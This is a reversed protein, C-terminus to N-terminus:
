DEMLKPRRGRTRRRAAMAAFDLGKFVSWEIGEPLPRNALRQCEDASIARFGYKDHVDSLEHGAQLRRSRDKVPTARIDDIADGRLSHFVEGGKAGNRRMHNQMTKSMYKSPNPHEHAAAFVFGNQARMWEIFGIDDFYKHLVYFAMSEETKIPVRRWETEGTEENKVEVIGDTQAIWVGHKQRIDSGQLYTLLGLRRSTLKSLPPLMAVDLLGSTVGNRFVQNIVDLSLGERPKSSRLTQPYTIKAGAFPDRYRHDMLGHRMMTRLNAVYGDEMTKRAMPKLAFNKNVELIELTSKGAMDDRKTVTGPWFQMKNVYNQLDSPFYEDVYKDLMVDLATQRRMVLIGIDPHDQGDRGIRMDIYDQSVKSFLPMQRAGPPQPQPASSVPTEVPAVKPAVDEVAALAALAADPQAALKLVDTLAHRTLADANVTVAHAGAEGKAVERQVLQLSTLASGLGQALGIAQSPQAIARTIANQCAAIVQKVLDNENDDLPTTMATTKMTAAASACITQCLAALRQALRKAEGRSRPGLQVRLIPPGGALRFNGGLLNAPLRMQFRWGSTDGTLYRPPKSAAASGRRKIKAPVKVPVSAPVSV